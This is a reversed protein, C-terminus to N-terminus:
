PLAGGLLEGVATPGAARPKKPRKNEVSWFARRCHEVMQVVGSRSKYVARLSAKGGVELWDPRESEALGRLMFGLGLVVIELDSVSYSKALERIVTGEQDESWPKGAIEAPCKGDPRWLSERILPFLVKFPNPTEQPLSGNGTPQQQQAADAPQSAVTEQISSGKVERRNSQAPPSGRPPPLAGSYTQLDVPQAKPNDPAPIRSPAEREKRLGKQHSAFGPFALCLRGDVDYWLVLGVTVLEAIAAGVTAADLETRLPCVISRVLEPNGTIRGERDLHPICRGFLYDAGFSVRGLQESLSISKSV